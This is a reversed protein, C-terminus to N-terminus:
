VFGAPETPRRGLRTEVRQTEGDRRIELTVTQGPNAELALYRLLDREAGVPRDDIGVIVDGGVPVRQNRLTVREEATVLRDGVLLSSVVSVVLYGTAARLDNAVAVTPTVTRGRVGLFPHDYRRGDALVPVVRRALPASPAFTVTEGGGASVVGIVDGDYTVLPGGSNGPNVAADTQVSDLVLGGTEGTFTRHLGSVIGASASQPLGFPHGVAVVRTGIPPLEGAFAVPTVYDPTDARLVALDSHRDSALLTADRWEGRPFRVEFVSRDTVVHHNTVLGADTLFGTAQGSDSTGYATVLATTDAVAEYADVSTPDPEPTPSPSPRPRPTPTPTDTPTHTPSPPPGTTPAPGDRDTCGALLGALVALLHRRRPM